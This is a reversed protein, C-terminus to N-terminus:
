KIKHKEESFGCDCLNTRGFEIFGLCDEPFVKGSSNALPKPPAECNNKMNGLVEAVAAEIGALASHKSEAFWCM